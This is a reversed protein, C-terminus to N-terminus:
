KPDRLKVLLESLRELAANMKHMQQGAPTLLHEPWPCHPPALWPQPPLFEQLPCPQSCM